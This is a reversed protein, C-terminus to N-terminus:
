IKEIVELGVSVAVITGFMQVEIVAKKRGKNISMIMSEHGMLAGSIIKVTDGEKFGKSIDICYNNAFIRSLILREGERMAIDDKNGYCLFRYADKDKDITPFAVEIFEMTPKDSEIFVYGPFCIKQFLSKKGQRRFVCTKKPVFPQFGCNGLSYKLRKALQEETGTRVFLIYWYIKEGTM